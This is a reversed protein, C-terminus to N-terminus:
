VGRLCLCLYDKSIEIAFNPNFAKFNDLDFYCLIYPSDDVEVDHIYKQIMRNGPLKTLPNQDRAIILNEENMISIIARASLFGYYSSDQTIILDKTLFLM